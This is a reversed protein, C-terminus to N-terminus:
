REASLGRPSIGRPTGGEGIRKVEEQIKSGVYGRLLRLIRERAMNAYPGRSIRLEEMLRDCLEEMNTIRGPPETRGPTRARPGVASQPGPPRANGTRGTSGARVGDSRQPPYM